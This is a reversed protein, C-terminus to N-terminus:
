VAYAVSQESIRDLPSQTGAYHQGIVHTYIQTTKVDTHGLLEQVTRIDTGGELLHTAFSHRFTHCTVRKPIQIELTAKRLAKRIVTHHLHHRCLKNNVPHHCLAISPFVFMWSPNRFATPLKRGLADPISPGVGSRNDEVQIALAKDIQAKLRPKLKQSLLSVRDKGGKGNRITVSNNDFNIDQVRIGLAESVRLGSGYMLEVILQHVGDLRDIILTVEKPTLVTPLRRPKNALKFNLAKLPQDLIKNYMFTVANLAIRQTNASVHRDAALHDLFAVVEEKGMDAPHQMRHFRIYYRIWHLYSKETKLAYGRVRMTRRISEIFPSKGSM